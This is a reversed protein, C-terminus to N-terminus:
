GVSRTPVHPSNKIALAMHDRETATFCSSTMSFGALARIAPIYFDVWQGPHFEFRRKNTTTTREEKPAGQPPRMAADSTAPLAPRDIVDDDVNDGGEVVVVSSDVSESQAEHVAKRDGEEGDDEGDDPQPYTPGGLEFELRVISDTVLQRSVVRADFYLPPTGPASTAEPVTDTIGRADNNDDTRDGHSVSRVGAMTGAEPAAVTIYRACAAARIRFGLILRGSLLMRQTECQLRPLGVLFVDCPVFGTLSLQLGVQDLQKPGEQKQVCGQGLLEAGTCRCARDCVFSIM